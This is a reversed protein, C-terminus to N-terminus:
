TNWWRNRDSLNKPCCCPMRSTGSCFWRVEKPNVTMVRYGCYPAFAFRKIRRLPGADPCGVSLKVSSANTEQAPPRTRWLKQHAFAWKRPRAKDSQNTDGGTLAM